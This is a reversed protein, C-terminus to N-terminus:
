SEFLNQLLKHYVQLITRDVLYDVPPLVLQMHNQIHVVDMPVIMLSPRSNSIHRDILVNLKVVNRGTRWVEIRNLRNEPLNLLPQTRLHLLLPQYIKLLHPPINLLYHLLNLM